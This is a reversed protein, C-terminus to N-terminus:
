GSQLNEETNGPLHQSLTKFYAVVYVKWTRASEDNM